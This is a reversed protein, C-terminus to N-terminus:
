RVKDGTVSLGYGDASRRAIDLAPIGPFHGLVRERWGTKNADALASLWMGGRREMNAVVTCVRQLCLLRALTKMVNSGFVSRLSDPM